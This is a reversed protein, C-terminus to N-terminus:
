QALICYFTCLRSFYDGHDKYPASYSAQTAAAHVCPLIDYLAQALPVRRISHAGVLRTGPIRFDPNKSKRVESDGFM